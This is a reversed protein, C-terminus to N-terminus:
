PLTTSSVGSLMGFPFIWNLTKKISKPCCQVPLFWTCHLGIQQLCCQVHFFGTRYHQLIRPVVNWMYFGLTINDLFGLLVNWLLFGRKINDEYAQFLVACTSFKDLKTYNAGSFMACFFIRNLTTKISKPCSEVPLFRTCYQGLPGLSCEM